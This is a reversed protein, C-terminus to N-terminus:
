LSTVPTHIRLIRPQVVAPGLVLHVDVHVGDVPDDVEICLSTCFILIYM